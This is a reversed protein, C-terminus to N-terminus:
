VKYQSTHERGWWHPASLPLYWTRKVETNYRAGLGHRGWVLHDVRSSIIWLWLLWLILHGPEFSKLFYLKLHFRNALSMKLCKSKMWLRTFITGTWSTGPKWYCKTWSGQFLWLGLIFCSPLSPPPLSFHHISFFFFLLPDRFWWWYEFFSMSNCASMKIVGHEAVTKSKLNLSM